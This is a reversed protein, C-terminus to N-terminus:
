PKFGHLSFINEFESIIVPDSIKSFGQVFNATHKNLARLWAQGTVEVPKKLIIGEKGSISNNFGAIPASGTKETDIVFAMSAFYRKPSRKGVGSIVWAVGSKSGSVNKNTFAELNGLDLVSKGVKMENHYVFFNDM